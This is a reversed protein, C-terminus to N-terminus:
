KRQKDNERDHTINFVEKDDMGSKKLDAQTKEWEKLIDPVAGGRKTMKKFDQTVKRGDMLDAVKAKLLSSSIAKIEQAGRIKLGYNVSGVARESDM